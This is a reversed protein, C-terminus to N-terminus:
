APPVMPPPAAPPAAGPPAMEPPMGPPLGTAQAAPVTPMAQPATPPAAPPALMAEAQAMWLRLLDLREEPAGQMRARLYASQFMRLGAQLDQYPEPPLYTDADPPGDGDLFREITSLIDERAAVVLSTAEDLDPLDLLQRASIEDVWGAEYWEMVRKIRAAPTTPLSSTPFTKLVFDAADMRVDKWSIKERQRRGRESSVELFTDEEAAEEAIDIVLRAAQVAAEEYMQGVLVFRESEIDNFERLSPESNLGAPKQATASLMSIGVEELGQQIDQEVSRFLEPPVVNGTLVQPPEMGRMIVGPENTLQKVEFKAGNRVFYRPVSMLLLADNIARLKRNITRQRGALQEAVGQGYFGQLRKSFRFVVFPFRPRTWQRDRLTAGEVTVTYRGDEAGEHSPLHWAMAVQVMDGLAAVRNVTHAPKPAMLIAERRAAVEEESAEPDMLKVLALLVERPVWRLQVMTRPEGYRGDSEGVLLEEPFVREFRIATGAENLDVKLVGLDQVSADRFVDRAAPYYGGELMAGYVFRDLRRARRQQSWSGGDTVFSAKPKAKSIKACLTDVAVRILNFTINPRQRALVALAAERRVAAISSAGAFHAEKDGYLHAYATNTIARGGQERELTRVLDFVANHADNEPADWWQQRVDLPLRKGKGKKNGSDGDGPPAVPKFARHDIESM